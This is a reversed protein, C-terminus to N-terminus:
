KTENRDGATVGLEGTNTVIMHLSGNLIRLMWRIFGHRQRTLALGLASGFPDPRASPTMDQSKVSWVPGLGIEGREALGM